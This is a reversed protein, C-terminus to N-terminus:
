IARFKRAENKSFVLTMKKCRPCLHGDKYIKYENKWVDPHLIWLVPYVKEGDQSLSILSSGYGKVDTSKCWQCKHPTERINVDVLGCKECYYPALCVERSLNGSFTSQKFGCACKADLLSTNGLGYKKQEASASM